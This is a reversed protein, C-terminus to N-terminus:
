KLRIPKSQYSAFKMWMKRKVCTDCYEKYGLKNKNRIATFKQDCGVCVAEISEPRM